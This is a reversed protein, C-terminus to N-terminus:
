RLRKLVNGDVFILFYVFDEYAERTRTLVKTSFETRGEQIKSWLHPRYREFNSSIFIVVYSLICKNIWGYDKRPPYDPIHIYASREEKARHKELFGDIDFECIEDFSLHTKRLSSIDNDIFEVHDKKIVPIKEALAIPYGLITFLDLVRDLFGKRDRQNFKVEIRDVEMPNVHIGHGGSTDDYRLLTYILFALFSHWSYYYLTSKARSARLALEFLEKSDELFLANQRPFLRKNRAIYSKTLHRPVTKGRTNKGFLRSYKNARKSFDSIQANRTIKECNFTTLDKFRLFVEHTSEFSM